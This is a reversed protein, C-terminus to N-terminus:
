PRALLTELRDFNQENAPAIIHRIGALIEATEFTARWNLRTQGAEDHLTILLRFRPASLHDFDIRENAVIERFMWENDNNRGDPGHFTFHWRGGNHFEFQHFTSSFGNPGWWQTLRAPDAHAQFVQQRSFPLLRTSHHERSNM